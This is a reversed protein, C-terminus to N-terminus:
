YDLSINVKEPAIGALKAIRVRAESIVEPLTLDTDQRKETLDTSPAGHWSVGSELYDLPADLADGLAMLNEPRPETNGQEWNWVCTTTVGVKKALATKSLRRHERLAQLRDSFAM